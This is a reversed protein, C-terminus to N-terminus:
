LFQKEQEQYLHLTEQSSWAWFPHIWNSAVCSDMMSSHHCLSWLKYIVLVIFIVAQKQAGTSADCISQMESYLEHRAVTM